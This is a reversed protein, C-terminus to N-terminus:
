ADPKESLIADLMFRWYERVGDEALSYSLVADEVAQQSPERLAEVAARAIQEYFGGINRVDALKDVEAEIARAVQELKTM